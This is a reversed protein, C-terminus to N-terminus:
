PYAVLKFVPSVRHSMNMTMKIKYDLAYLLCLIVEQGSLLGLLRATTFTPVAKIHMSLSLCHSLENWFDSVKLTESFVNDKVCGYTLRPFAITIISFNCVMLCLTNTLDKTMRLSSQELHILQFLSRPTKTCGKGM